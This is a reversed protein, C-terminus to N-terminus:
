QDPADWDDDEDEEEAAAARAAVIAADIQQAAEPEQLIKGIGELLGGLGEIEAGGGVEIHIVAEGQDDLEPKLIIYPRLGFLQQSIVNDARQELTFSFSETETEEAAPATTETM